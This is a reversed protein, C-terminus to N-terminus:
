PTAVLWRVIPEDIVLRVPTVARIEEGARWAYIRGYYLGYHATDLVLSGTTCATSSSLRAGADDELEVAVRHPDGCALPDWHVIVRAIPPVEAEVPADICATLVTLCVLLLQM